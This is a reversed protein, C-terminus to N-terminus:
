GKTVEEEENRGVGEKERRGVHGVVRAREPNNQLRKKKQTHFKKRRMGM